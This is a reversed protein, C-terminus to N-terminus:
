RITLNLSSMSLNAWLFAAGSQMFKQDASYMGLSTRALSPFGNPSFNIKEPSSTRARLGSSYVPAELLSSGFRVEDVSKAFSNKSSYM